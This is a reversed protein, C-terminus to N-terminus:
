VGPSSLDDLYIAILNAVARQLDRIQADRQANSLAVTGVGLVKLAAQVTTLRAIIQERNFSATGAKWVRRQTLTRAVADFEEHDTYEPTDKIITM